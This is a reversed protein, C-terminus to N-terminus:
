RVSDFEVTATIAGAGVAVTLPRLGPPRTRVLRHYLASALLEPDPHVGACATTSARILRGDRLTTVITDASVAAAAVRCGPLRNLTTAGWAQAAAETMRYDAVLIAANQALREDPEGETVVLHGFDEPRALDSLTAPFRRMTAADDDSEIAVRLSRTRPIPLPDIPSPEPVPTAAPPTLVMMEYMLERLLALSEGRRAFVQDALRDLQARDVDAIARRIQNSLPQERVLRPMQAGLESMSTGAPVEADGFTALVLPSRLGTAYASLSGHDGLVCSAAALVSQWSGTPPVLMLGASRARKLWHEIQWSGHYAWVNPHLIAAVRFEDYPLQALLEAPLTPWRGMTSEGGWTSTVAVLAQGPRLGLLRRQRDRDRGLMSLRDLCPDGIVAARDALAPAALKLQAIQNEHSVGIRTPIPRGRHWLAAVGLGSLERDPGAAPDSHPSYKQYGAGHPILLLPGVLEHLDSNDSAAIVLDFATTTAASWPIIHAGLARVRDAVGVSFESGEDITFSVQIRPDDALAPLVDLIRNLSTTTRAVVLVRHSFAVTAWSLSM